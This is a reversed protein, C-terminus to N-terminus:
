SHVKSNCGAAADRYNITASEDYRAKEDLAVEAITTANNRWRERERERERERHV